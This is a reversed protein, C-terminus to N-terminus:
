IGKGSLHALDEDTLAQEAVRAEVRLRSEVRLHDLQGGVTVEGNMQARERLIQPIVV